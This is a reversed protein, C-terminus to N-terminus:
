VRIIAKDARRFDWLFSDASHKYYAGEIVPHIQEPENILMGVCRNIADFLVTSIGPLTKPTGMPRDTCEATGPKTLM